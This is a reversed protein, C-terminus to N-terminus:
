SRWRQQTHQHQHQQRRHFRVRAIGDAVRDQGVHDASVQVREVHLQLHIHKNLLKFEDPNHM